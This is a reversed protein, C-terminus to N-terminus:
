GEVGSRDNRDYLMVRDSGATGALRGRVNPQLALPILWRLNPVVSLHYLDDVRWAHVREDTLTRLEDLPVDSAYYFLVRWPPGVCSTLEAFCHWAHVFLGAEEAFERRQAGLPSEGDEVHGGIGNWLGAQWAPRQKEILAVKTRAKNFAFGCAYKQESM